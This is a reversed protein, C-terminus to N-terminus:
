PLRDIGFHIFKRFIESRRKVGGGRKRFIYQSKKGCVPQVLVLNAFFNKLDSIYLQPFLSRVQAANWTLSILLHRLYQCNDM